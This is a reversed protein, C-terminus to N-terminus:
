QVQMIAPSGSTVTAPSLIAPSPGSGSNTATAEEAICVNSCVMVSPTLGKYVTIAGKQAATVVIEGDFLVRGGRDTITVQSNGFGKGMVYVTRSDIITVDAIEPNAVIVAGASGSLALRQSHNKEVVLRQAAMVSTTALSALAFALVGILKMTMHKTMRLSM